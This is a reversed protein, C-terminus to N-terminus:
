IEDVVSQDAIWYFGPSQVWTVIIVNLCPAPATKQWQTLFWLGFSFNRKNQFKAKTM